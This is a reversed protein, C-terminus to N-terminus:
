VLAPEPWRSNVALVEIVAFLAGKCFLCVRCLVHLVLGCFFVALVLTTSERYRKNKNEEEEYSESEELVM